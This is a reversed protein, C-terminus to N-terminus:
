AESAFECWLSSADRFGCAAALILHNNFNNSDASATSLHLLFNLALASGVLVHGDHTV